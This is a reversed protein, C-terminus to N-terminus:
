IMYNNHLYKDKASFMIFLALAVLIIFKKDIVPITNTMILVESIIAHILLLIM